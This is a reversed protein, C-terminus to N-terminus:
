AHVLDAAAEPLRRTGDMYAPWSRAVAERSPDSFLRLSFLYLVYSPDGARAFVRRVAEGTTFFQVEHLLDNRTTVGAVGILADHLNTQLDSYFAFHTTTVFATSPPTQAAAIAPVSLTALLVLHRINM